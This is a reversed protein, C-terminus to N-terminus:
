CEKSPKIKRGKQWMIWCIILSWSVMITHTTKTSQWVWTEHVWYWKILTLTIRNYNRDDHDPISIGPCCPLPFKWPSLFHQPSASELLIRQTTTSDAKVHLCKNLQHKDKIQVFCITQMMCPLSWAHCKFFTSELESPSIGWSLKDCSESLM